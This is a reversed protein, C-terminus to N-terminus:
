MPSVRYLLHRKKQQELMNKEQKKKRKKIKCNNDKNDRLRNKNM